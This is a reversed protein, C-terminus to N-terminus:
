EFIGKLYTELFLGPAPIQLGPILSRVFKGKSPDM